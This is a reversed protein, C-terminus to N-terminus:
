RSVELTRVQEDALVCKESVASLIAHYQYTLADIRSVVSSSRRHLDAAKVSVAELRGQSEETSAFSYGGSSTMIPANVFEEENPPLPKRGGEEEKKQISSAGSGRPAKSKTSAILGTSVSGSASTSGILLLDRIASLNKMQSRLIDASALVEQRRYLLPASSASKSGMALGASSQHTLAAGPDLEYSLRRCEKLDEELTAASADGRLLVDLRAELDLVRTESIEKKKGSGDGLRTELALVRAELEPTSLVM